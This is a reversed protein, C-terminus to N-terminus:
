AARAFSDGASRGATRSENVPRRPPSNLVSVIGFMVIGVAGLLALMAGVLSSIDKGM